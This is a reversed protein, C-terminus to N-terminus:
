ALKQTEPKPRCLRHMQLITLKCARKYNFKIFFALKNFSGIPSMAQVFILFDNSPFHVSSFPAFTFINM